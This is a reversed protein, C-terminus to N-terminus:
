PFAPGPRGGQFRFPPLKTVKRRKAYHPTVNEGNELHKAKAAQQPLATIALLAIFVGKGYRSWIKRTESDHARDAEISALIGLVDLKLEGAMKAAAVPNAHSTGAQWNAVASQRVKLYRAAESDSKFGRALKWRRLLEQTCTM